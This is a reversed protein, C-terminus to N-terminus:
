RVRGLVKVTKRAVILIFERYKRTEETKHIFGFLAATMARQWLELIFPKGGMEGKSHKTFKEVFEIAHSAREPSYEYVSDPDNMDHVLKKYVRRIKDGVIVEGSQIKNWYEIIPNM